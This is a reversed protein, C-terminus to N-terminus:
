WSCTICIATAIAPKEIPSASVRRLAIPLFFISYRIGNLSRNTFPATSRPYASRDAASM